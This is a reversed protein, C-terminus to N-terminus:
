TPIEVNLYASPPPPTAEHGGFTIHAFPLQEPSLVLGSGQECRDVLHYTWQTVGRINTYM